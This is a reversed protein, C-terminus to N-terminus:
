GSGRKSSPVTRLRVFERASSAPVRPARRGKTGFDTYSLSGDAIRERVYTQGCAWLEALEDVTFHQEDPVDEPVSLNMMGGETLVRGRDAPHQQRYERIGRRLFERALSSESVDQGAARLEDRIELLRRRDSPLLKTQVLKTLREDPLFRFDSM